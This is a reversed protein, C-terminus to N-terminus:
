AENTCLFKRSTLFQRALKNDLGSESPKRHAQFQGLWQMIEARDYLLFNRDRDIPKPMSERYRVLRNLNDPRVDLLQSIEKRTITKEASAYNTMQIEM